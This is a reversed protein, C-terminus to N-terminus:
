GVTPSAVGPQDQALLSQPAFCGEIAEAGVGAELDQSGDMTFLSISAYAWYVRKDGLQKPEHHKMVATTVRVSVDLSLFQLLLSLIIM